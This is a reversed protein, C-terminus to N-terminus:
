SLHSKTNSMKSSIDNEIHQRGIFTYNQFGNQEVVQM